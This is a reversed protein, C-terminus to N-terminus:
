RKMFESTCKDTGWGNFRCFQVSGDRVWLAAPDYVVKSGYKKSGSGDSNEWLTTYSYGSVKGQVKVSNSDAATDYLNGSVQMGGYPYKGNSKPHWYVSGQIHGYSNGVNIGGNGSRAMAATAGGVVVAAALSTIAIGKRMSRKM